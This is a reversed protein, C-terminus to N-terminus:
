GPMSGAENYKCIVANRSASGAAAQIAGCNSRGNRSNSRAAPQVSTRCPLPLWSIQCLGIVFRFKATGTPIGLRWVALAMRRWAPNGFANQAFLQYPPNAFRLGGITMALPAFCDLALAFTQNSRRKREECRRPADRM